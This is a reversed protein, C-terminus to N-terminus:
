PPYNNKTSLVIQSVISEVFDEEIRLFLHLGNEASSLDYHLIKSSGFSTERPVASLRKGLDSRPRKAGVKVLVENQTALSSGYISEVQEDKDFYLYLSDGTKTEGLWLADSKEIWTVISSHVDQKKQGLFFCDVSLSDGQVLSESPVRGYDPLSGWIACVFVLGLLLGIKRM